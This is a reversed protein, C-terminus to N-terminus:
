AQLTDDVWTTVHRDAETPYPYGLPTATEQALRRFLATTALLARAIDARDYHAFAGRLEQLAQPDAWQELFRGSHWTDVSGGRTARAHWELMRLLLRKMYSDSCSKATWLEGRRLKKATWVAHYLFDNVVNLFEAQSPPQRPAAPPLKAAMRALLGDKDVLVRAGRRLLDLDLQSLGTALSRKVSELRDFAFDVDLADKFLVRREVTEAHPAHEIFTVWHPGFQALWDTSSVYPQPDTAVIWLDLDSWQDAPREARARSGIVALARIDPQARAWEVARELLVDMTLKPAHM